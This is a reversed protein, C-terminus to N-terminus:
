EADAGASGGSLGTIVDSRDQISSARRLEDALREAALGFAGPPFIITDSASRVVVSGHDIEIREIWEWRILAKEEEGFHSVGHLDV